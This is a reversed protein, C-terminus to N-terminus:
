INTLLEYCTQLINTLRAQYTLINTILAYCNVFLKYSTQLINTLLIHCDIHKYTWLLSIIHKYSNCLLNAIHKYSICILKCFTLFHLVLKYITQLSHMVLKCYKQLFHMVLKYFTKWFCVYWTHLLNTFFDMLLKYCAQLFHMLLKCHKHSICLLKGFTYLLNLNHKCSNCFLNITRKYFNKSAQFTWFLKVIIQM